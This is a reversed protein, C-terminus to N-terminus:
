IYLSINIDKTTWQKIRYPVSDTIINELFTNERLKKQYKFSVQNKRDIANINVPMLCTHFKQM